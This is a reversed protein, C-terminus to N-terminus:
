DRPFILLYAKGAPLNKHLRITRGKILFLRRSNAASDRLIILRSEAPSFGSILCDTRSMKCLLDSDSWKRPSPSFIIEYVMTFFFFFWWERVILFSLFFLIISTIFGM